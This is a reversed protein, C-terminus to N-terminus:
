KRMIKRLLGVGVIGAGFLLITSPEPVVSPNPAVQALATSSFSFILLFTSTFGGILKKM